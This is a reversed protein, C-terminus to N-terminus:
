LDGTISRLALGHRFVSIIVTPGDAPALLFLVSRLICLGSCLIDLSWQQMMDHNLVDLLSPHLSLHTVWRVIGTGGDSQVRLAVSIRYIRREGLRAVSWCGVM